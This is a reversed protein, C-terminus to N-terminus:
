YGGRHSSNKSIYNKLLEHNTLETLKKSFFDRADEEKDFYQPEEDYTFQVDDTSYHIPVVNKGVGFSSGNKFLVLNDMTEQNIVKRELVEDYELLNRTISEYLNM